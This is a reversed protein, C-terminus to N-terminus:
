DVVLNGVIMDMPCAYRFKGKKSTQIAVTVPKDLPLEKNVDMDKMVIATACTKATKRTVVLEVKEGQKVHIEAPVFGESSVVVEVVHAKGKAPAATAARAAGAALLACAATLTLLTKHTM